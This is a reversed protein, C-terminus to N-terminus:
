HSEGYQVLEVLVGFTSKPHLFAVRSGHAGERPKEDILRIGASKLEEVAADIDEVELALHHFGEGKNELFKAVPSDAATPV